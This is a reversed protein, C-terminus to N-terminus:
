FDEADLVAEVIEAKTRGKAGMDKAHGRLANWEMANLEAKRDVRSKVPEVVPAPAAPQVVPVVAAIRHVPPPQPPRVQTAAEPEGTKLTWGHASSCMEAENRAARRTSIFAVGGEVAQVDGDCYNKVDTVNVNSGIFLYRM